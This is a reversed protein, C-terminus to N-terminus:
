NRAHVADVEAVVQVGDQRRQAAHLQGLLDGIQGHVEDPASVVLAHLPAYYVIAGNGGNVNWTAPSITAEILEVLEPGFDTATANAHPIGTVLAGQAVAAQRAGAAGPPALQQALVRTEPLAAVHAAKQNKPSRNVGAIKREIRDRVTVLRLRV